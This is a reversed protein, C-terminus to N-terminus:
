FIEKMKQTFINKCRVTNRYIPDPNDLHWTVKIDTVIHVKINYIINKNYIINATIKFDWHM